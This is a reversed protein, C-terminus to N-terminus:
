PLTEGIDSSLFFFPSFVHM